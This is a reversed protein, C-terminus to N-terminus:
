KKPDWEVHFHENYASKNEWIVDYGLPHLQDRLIDFIKQRNVISLNITRLDIAADKYHLSGDMHKSDNGSTITASFGANDNWIKDIVPFLNYIEPIFRKFVVGDKVYIM